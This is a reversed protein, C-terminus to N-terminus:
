YAWTTYLHAPATLCHLRPRRSYTPDGPVPEGAEMRHIRLHGVLSVRSKFNRACNPCYFDTSPHIRLHGVLGIRSTFTRDCQPCNLLSDGDSITTTTYAFATTTATNPYPNSDGGGYSNNLPPLHSTRSDSMGLTSACVVGSVRVQNLGSTTVTAQPTAALFFGVELLWLHSNPVM